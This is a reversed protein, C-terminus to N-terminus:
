EVRIRALVLLVLAVLAVAARLVMLAWHAEMIVRAMHELARLVPLEVPLLVSIIKDVVVLVVV